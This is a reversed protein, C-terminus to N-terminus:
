SVWPKEPGPASQTAGVVDIAEETGKADSRGRRKRYGHTPRAELSQGLGVGVIAFAVLAYGSVQLSFDVLSHLNATLAVVLGALPAVTERRSRRTGRLLVVFGVLWALLVVSALPIGLEAALELPTSHALEWVGWTSIDGSRYTPIIAAFTGWGTGFLPHDAIIRMTSQYTAYRGQETLGSADIRAEVQGGMLRLLLWVVAVVGILVALLSLGRPLDRWFFVVFAIAMSLLSFLIGARSATMFLAALCVFLMCLRVALEFERSSAKGFQQLVDAWKIPGAPLRGRLTSMLLVLWVVACSGFYTAATNRNVFTGTLVGGHISVFGYAAYAVGSWGLVLLAQRARMNDAGVVLGLVLALVNALTPGLAYFPEGRIISVSPQVPRGLLEATKAWIPNPAAIWPHDSLQEHLVFGYCAIVFGIGALLALHGARLNRTSTLLLGAGLVICWLAVTTQDRSGFPLPAVAIVFFLVYASIRNAHAAHELM